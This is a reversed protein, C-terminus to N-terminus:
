GENLTEITHISPNAVFAAFDDALQEAASIATKWATERARWDLGFRKFDSRDPIKQNPLSRVFAESPCILVTNDLWHRTNLRHARRYHLFKDLWGPVIYPAFHPYLTIGGLCPWPWHIHYDSIGGDWYPGVPAGAISEVPSLIMPIAGTATLVSKFNAQNLRLNRTPLGDFSDMLGESPPLFPLAQGHHFAVRELSRGLHQRSVCNALLTKAYGRKHGQTPHSLNGIGRVTLLHLAYRSQEFISDAMPDILKDLIRACVADIDSRTAKGTYHQEDMYLDTLAQFAAVPNASAACAMRWAGVSAGVLHIPQKNAALWDGFVYQDLHKLLLGKPGGAAAPIARIDKPQLGHQAIHARAKRGALIRLASM